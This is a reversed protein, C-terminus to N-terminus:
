FMSSSYPLLMVNIPRLGYMERPNQLSFELNKDTSRDFLMREYISGRSKIEYLLLNLWTSLFVIFRDSQRALNSRPNMSWKPRFFFLLRVDLRTIKVWRHTSNIAGVSVTNRVSQFSSRLNKALGFFSTWLLVNVLPLCGLFAWSLCRILGYKETLSPAIFNFEDCFNQIM